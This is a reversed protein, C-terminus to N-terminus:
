TPRRLTVVTQDDEPPRGGEHERVAAFLEDIVASGHRTSADFVRLLREPGFMEGDGGRAESLGDTYVLVEDGPELRVVDSSWETDPFAPSIMPGTLPLSPRKGGAARKLRGGPHGANVYEFETGAADFRGCFVTVFRGDDFSRIASSIKQVVRQPAYASERTDRFASKVVGVLMAASVGHGSVDAVVFALRGERDTVHDYLDGGLAESSECRASLEVGGVAVNPEPLLSHQFARAAELQSELTAVYERNEVELRRLELCRAVLTLLVERDFPKQIFYFARERIARILQADLEHIIGTMFIVDIEPQVERLRSVIEFGDVEPMRVDVIALDIRESRARASAEVHDWATVVAYTPALVREVTRLMAPEDDVVLIRPTTM